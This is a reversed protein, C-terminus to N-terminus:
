DTPPLRSRCPGPQWASAFAQPETAFWRHALRTGDFRVVVQWPHTVRVADEVGMTTLGQVIARNVGQHAIVLVAHDTVTLLAQLAPRVRERADALSEGGPWRHHWPDLRRAELLGPFRQEDMDATTGLEEAVLRATHAARSLSSSVIQGVGLEAALRGLARAQAQGRETLTGGIRGQLRGQRNYETEGHRGLYLALQGPM